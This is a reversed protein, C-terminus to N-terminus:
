RKADRKRDRETVEVDTLNQDAKSDPLAQGRSIKVSAEQAASMQADTIGATAQAEKDVPEAVGMGILLAADREDDIVTGKPAVEYIESAIRRAMEDRSIEGKGFLEFTKRTFERKALRGAKGRYQPKRRTLERTTKVQM